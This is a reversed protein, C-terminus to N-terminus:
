WILGDFSSVANTFRPIWRQPSLCVQLSSLSLQVDSHWASRCPLAVLFPLLNRYRRLHQLDPLHQLRVAQCLRQCQKTTGLVTADAQPPVRAMMSCLM